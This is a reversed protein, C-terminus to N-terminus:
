EGREDYLDVLAIMDDEDSTEWVRESARAVFAALTRGWEVTRERDQRAQTLWRRPDYTATEGVMAYLDYVRREVEDLDVTRWAPLQKPTAANEVIEVIETL